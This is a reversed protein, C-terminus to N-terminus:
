PRPVAPPGAGRRDVAPPPCVRSSSVRQEFCQRASTQAPSSSAAVRNQFGARRGSNDRTDYVAATSMKATGAAATRSPRLGTRVDPLRRARPAVTYPPARQRQGAYLGPTHSKSHILAATPGMLPDATCTPTAPRTSVVCPRGSASLTPESFSRRSAGHLPTAFSGEPFRHLPFGYRRLTLPM